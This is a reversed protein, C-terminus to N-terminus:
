MSIKGLINRSQQFTQLESAAAGSTFSNIRIIYDHICELNTSCTQNVVSQSLLPNLSTLIGSATNYYWNILETPMIPNMNDPITDSSIEGLLIIKKSLSQSNEPYFKCSLCANLVDTDNDLLTQNSATSISITQNTQRNFLDDSYNGNFNGALGEIHTRFKEPLSLVCELNEGIIEFQM